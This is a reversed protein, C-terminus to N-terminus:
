SRASRRARAKPKGKGKPLVRVLKDLNVKALERASQRGIRATAQNVLRMASRHHICVPPLQSTELPGEVATVVDLLSIRRPKRALAYGGGPGSVGTLLGADVLRRLIRYLFRPPFKCGAAITAATTPGDQGKVHVQLLVGVAYSVSSSLKM